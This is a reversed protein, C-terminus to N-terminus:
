QFNVQTGTDSFNAPTGTGTFQATTGSGAQATNVTVSTDSFTALDNGASDEIEDTTGTYDLNCTDGYAVSSALTFTRTSGSGSISNASINSGATTCDVDFDGNDYGTTAVTESFGVTLTAGDVSASFVTPATTDTGTVFGTPPGIYSTSVELEDILMASNTHTTMMHNWYNGLEITSYYGGTTLPSNKYEGSLTGNQTWVYLTAEGTGTDVAYELAVWEGVYDTLDFSPTGPCDAPHYAGTGDPGDGCEYLCTSNNCASATWLGDNGPKWSSISRTATGGLMEIHKIDTGACGSASQSTFFASELKVLYRMHVSTPSGDLAIRILADQGNGDVCTTPGLIEVADGSGGYGEGSALSVSAGNDAETTLGISGEFDNSYPLTVSLAPIPFILSLAAILLIRKMSLGNHTQKLM